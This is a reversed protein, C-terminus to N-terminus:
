VHKWTKRTLIASIHGRSVGYIKALSQQTALSGKYASRIEVIQAEGLRAMGHENGIPANGRGKRAKDQANTKHSGLFLHGPNICSPNDCHHCVIQHNRFYSLLNSEGLEKYLWYSVRQANFKRDEIRFRGYGDQTLSGIWNWCDEDTLFSVDEVQQWFRTKIKDLRTM